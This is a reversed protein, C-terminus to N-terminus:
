RGFKKRWALFEQFLEEESMNGKLDQDKTAGAPQASSAKLMEALKEEAVWYRKWGPVKAALNVEKWKPHYTPQYFTPFRDFYYHIFREVRRFRDSEKPWNYVALVAPIGLTEVKRGAEILNPYDQSTLTSPLYYEEFQEVYPVDIFHLGDSQKLKQFFDNPKGVTHLIAAFEGDLMKQVGLSTNVYVPEVRIGLREFLIRGTTTPGAGKTNFGVKKGELDKLTKIEPRALVHLEAVFLASIFHVRQDINRVEGSKKFDDFVDSFTIAIDVGKLYLLDKLNEKAGTGIIPVIRLNEGDNLAKAIEAAIRIATSELLGGEVGVTWKNARNIRDQEGAELATPQAGQAWASQGPAQLVQLLLLTLLFVVLRAGGVARQIVSAEQSHPAVLNHM